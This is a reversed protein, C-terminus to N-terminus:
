VLGARESWDALGVEALVDALGFVAEQFAASALNWDARLLMRRGSRVPGPDAANLQPAPSRVDRCGRSLRRTLCSEAQREGVGPADLVLGSSVSVTLVGGAGAAAGVAWFDLMLGALGAM